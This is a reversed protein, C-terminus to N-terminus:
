RLRCWLRRITVTLPTSGVRVGVGAILGVGVGVIVSVGVAVHVGDGVGEGVGPPSMVTVPNTYSADM